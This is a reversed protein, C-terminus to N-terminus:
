RSANTDKHQLPRNGEAPIANPNSAAIDFLSPNKVFRIYGAIGIMVANDTALAFTPIRLMVQPYERIKKEFTARLTKNAVVGGAIILTRAGTEELARLTKKALVEITADEFERAIDQKQQESLTGLKQVLYLVATKLGSFSFDYNSSNIMPRPLQIDAHIHTQDRRMRSIEALASIHPGGPYPLGLLRAVKDFAEGVADDRTRGLTTYNLSADILDIETHGGSILLALAPYEIKKSHDEQGLLVSFVHGEMHNVPIFPLGWAISLAKGFNLGVWLAPELGPGVTAAIADIAPKESHSLLDFTADLLEKERALVETIKEKIEKQNRAESKSNELNSETLVKKLLPILNLQHERKALNPYVGGYPAHKAVQSYLGEGLLTLQPKTIDGTCELLAIATEDCSTEIALIKM